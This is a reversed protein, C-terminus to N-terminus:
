VVNGSGGPVLGLAELERQKDVGGHCKEYRIRAGCWCKHRRSSRRRASRTTSSAELRTLRAREDGTPERHHEDTFWRGGHVRALAEDALHAAAIGILGLLGTRPHWRRSTGELPHWMCLTTPRSWRYRHRSETPGSAMVLPSGFDRASPFIIALRRSVGFVDVEGNYIIANGVVRRTFGLGDPPMGSEVGAILHRYGCWGTMLGARRRRRRSRLHAMRAPHCHPQRM